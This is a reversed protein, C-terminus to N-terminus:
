KRRRIFLMAAGLLGLAWTTPEPIVPTDAVLTLGIGQPLGGPPTTGGGLAASTGTPGTGSFGPASASLQVTATSGSAVGPVTATVPAILGIPSILPATHVAQLSGADPGAWVTVTVESFSGTFAGLNVSSGFNLTNLTGQASLSLAGALCVAIVLLKKM